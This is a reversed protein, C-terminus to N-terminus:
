NAKVGAANVVPSWKDFETRIFKGFEQPTLRRM